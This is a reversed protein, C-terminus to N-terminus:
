CRIPNGTAGYVRAVGSTDTKKIKTMRIPIYYYRIITKIQTERTIVSKLCKEHIHVSKMKMPM